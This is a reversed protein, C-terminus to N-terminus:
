IKTSCEPQLVETSSVTNKLNADHFIIDIKYHFKLTM